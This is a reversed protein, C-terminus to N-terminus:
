DRFGVKENPSLTGPIAFEDARPVDTNFDRGDELGPLAVDITDLAYKPEEFREANLQNVIQADDIQTDAQTSPGVLLFLGLLVAHVFVSALSAPLLRLLHRRTDSPQARIAVVPHKSQNAAMCTGKTPLPGVACSSSCRSPPM